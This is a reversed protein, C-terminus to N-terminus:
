TSTSSRHRDSRSIRGRLSSADDLVADLVSKDGQQDDDRFLRDFALAPYLELPTPTTPSSWSIHSSYLMSYNKHVAAISPECGLVLSPVKTQDASRSPSCRTSARRGVPDRRRLRAARRLAPQRDALQPHEGEPGGRQLPRPHLAAERPAPDLPQLVKGLEMTAAKARRGGSRATSATAPSSAPSGCRPRARRRRPPRDRRGLGAAIRALAPGDHRRPRPADARRRSIPADAQRDRSPIPM